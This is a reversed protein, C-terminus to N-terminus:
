EYLHTGDIAAQIAAGADVSGTNDAGYDNVVNRFVTYQDKFQGQLFSSEGNHEIEEYWYKNSWQGSSSCQADGEAVMLTRHSESDHSSPKTEWPRKNHDQVTYPIGSNENTCLLRYLPLSPAYVPHPVYDLPPFYKISTKGHGEHPDHPHGAESALVHKSCLLLGLVSTYLRLSASSFAM